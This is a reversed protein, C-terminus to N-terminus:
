KNTGKQELQKRGKITAYKKLLHAFFQLGSLIFSFIDIKAQGKWGNKSTNKLLYFFQAVIPVTKKM